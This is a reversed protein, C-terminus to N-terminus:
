FVNAIGQLEQVDHLTYTKDALIMSHVPGLCCLSQVSCILNNQQNFTLLLMNYRRGSYAWLIQMQNKTYGPENLSPVIEFYHQFRSAPAVQLSTKSKQTAECHHREQFPQHLWNICKFM